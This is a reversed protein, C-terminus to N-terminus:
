SFFIFFCFGFHEKQKAIRDFLEWKKNKEWETGNLSDTYLKQKRREDAEDRRQMYEDLNENLIM